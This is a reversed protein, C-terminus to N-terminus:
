GSLAYQGLDFIWRPSIKSSDMFSVLRRLGGPLLAAFCCGDIAYARGPEETPRTAVTRGYLKSSACIMARAISNSEASVSNARACRCVSLAPTPGLREEAEQLRLSNLGRNWDLPIDLPRTRGRGAGAVLRELLRWQGM